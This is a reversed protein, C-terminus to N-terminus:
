EDDNDEDEDSEDDSRIEELLGLIEDVCEKNLGSNYWVRMTHTLEDLLAAYATQGADSEDDSLTDYLPHDDLWAQLKVDAQEPRPGWTEQLAWEEDLICLLPLDIEDLNGSLDVEELLGDLLTLDDDDTLIQLNIRPSAEAMRVLLPLVAVTDPDDVSLLVLFRLIDPYLSLRLQQDGTLHVEDLRRRILDSYDSDLALFEVFSMAATFTLSTVNRVLSIQKM